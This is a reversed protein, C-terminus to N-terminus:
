GISVINSLYPDSKKRYVPRVGIEELIPTVLSMNKNVMTEVDMIALIWDPVEEELPIAIQTIGTRLKPDKLVEVMKEFEERYDLAISALDKASKVTVKVTHISNPFTIEKDPYLSNWIYSAKFSGSKMPDDYSDITNVKSETLFDKNGSKVEGRIKDELKLMKRLTEQIDVKDTVIHDFLTDEIHKRVYKPGFSVKKFDFGKIDRKPTTMYEGERLIISNLYRKKGSALLLATMGFENKMQYSGFPHAEANTDVKFKDLARTILETMIYAVTNMAKLRRGEDVKSGKSKSYLVIDKVPEMYQTFVKMLDHITIINSDTDIVVVNNRRINILRDVRGYYPYNYQCYELVINTLKKLYKEGEQPPKNPNLFLPANVSFKYIMEHILPNEQIFANLNSKYYLRNLATQSVNELLADLIGVDFNKISTCKRILRERVQSRTKNSALIESDTFSVKESIINECYHLLEDIDYFQITDSLFDEFTTMALSIFTQGKSTTSQAVHYSYFTSSRTGGVGYASNVYTKVRNQKLNYMKANEFDGAKDYEIEIKKLVKRKKLLNDTILLGPSIPGEEHRKFFTGSETLIPRVELIWDVIDLLTTNYEVNEYSNFLICNTNKVDRKYVRKLFSDFHSEHDPHIMRLVRKMKVSWLDYFGGFSKKNTVIKPKTINKYMIFEKLYEDTRRLGFWKIGVKIYDRTEYDDVFEGGRLHPNVSYELPSVRDLIILRGHQASDSMNNVLKISPYMATADLDILDLFIRNSRESGFLTAGVNNIGTPDGVLAGKLTEEFGSESVVDEGADEGFDLYNANLNNRMVQGNEFHGVNWLNKLSVTQRNAKDVQTGSDYGKLFVDDIDEVKREIGVQSWVDVMSYLVFNEYEEIAANIVTVGKKDFKRKGMKLEISAVNDLGNSGFDQGGKRRAAYNLMQDTYKTYSLCNFSDGRNKFDSIFREDVKYYMEAKGFDPHCFLAKSPLGLATARKDIYPIDYTCNM